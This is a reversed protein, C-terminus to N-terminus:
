ILKNPGKNKEGKSWKVKIKKGEKAWIRKGNREM